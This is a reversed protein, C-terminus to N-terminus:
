KNLYGNIINSLNLNKIFKQICEINKHTIYENAIWKIITVKFFYDIVQLICYM